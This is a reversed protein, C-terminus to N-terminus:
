KEGIIEELNIDRSLCKIDKKGDTYHHYRKIIVEIYKPDLEMWYCIRNTKECAILTSWSWLFIDLVIDEAKSSNNLAKEWLEIPKQTPHVYNTDRWQHWITTHTRDWYFNHKAWEKYGYLCPEHQSRYDQWSMSAQKKSWIVTASLKWGANFYEQEFATRVWNKSDAHWVYSCAWAKSAEEMRKFAEFLFTHFDGADMKDNKIKNSTNKGRWSYDVNYPPDTFVMDAKKWDMLKEVDEIKTSDWCMIKHNYLIDSDKVEIEEGTSKLKVKM